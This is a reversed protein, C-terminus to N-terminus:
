IEINNIEIFQGADEVKYKGVRTRILEKMYGIGGLKKAIDECLVRIYTGKSCCVRFKIENNYEDIKLLEIDTINIKRPEREITKGERALEYLKKGNVKLASYMPPIQMTEGLFSKFCNKINDENLIKKDINKKEVISGELDGTDRREGLKLVAIYEKDHNMLKESLRTAKGILILLVGTALPDLTGAHGVKKVNYKKRTERVIDFSTKGQPKDIILLGNMESDTM